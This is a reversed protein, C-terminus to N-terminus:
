AQCRLRARLPPQMASKSRHRAICGKTQERGGAWKGKPAPGEGDRGPRRRHRRLAEGGDAAGFLLDRRHGCACVRSCVRAHACM